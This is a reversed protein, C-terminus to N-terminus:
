FGSPVPLPPRMPRKGALAGDPEVDAFHVRFGCEAPAAETVAAMGQALMRCAIQRQAADEIVAYRAFCPRNAIGNSEPHGPLGLRDLTIALDDTEAIRFLALMRQGSSDPERTESEKSSAVEEGLAFLGPKSPIRVQLSDRCSFWPSWRLRNPDLSTEVGHRLLTANVLEALGLL